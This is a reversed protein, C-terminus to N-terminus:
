GQNQWQLFAKEEEDVAVEVEVVHVEPAASAKTQEKQVRGVGAGAAAQWQEFEDMEDDVGGQSTPPPPATPKPNSTNSKKESKGNPPKMDMQVDEDKIAVSDYKGKRDPEGQQGGMCYWQSLISLCLTGMIILSATCLFEEIGSLEFMFFVCLLSVLNATAVITMTWNFGWLCCRCREWVGLVLLGLFLTSGLAVGFLVNVDTSDLTEDMSFSIWMIVECVALVVLLIHNIRAMCPYHTVPKQASAASAGRRKQTPPSKERRKSKSKKASPAASPEDELEDQGPFM